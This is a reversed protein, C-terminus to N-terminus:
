RPPEDRSEKAVFGIAPKRGVRAVANPSGIMSASASSVVANAEACAAEGAAVVMGDADAAPESRAQFAGM